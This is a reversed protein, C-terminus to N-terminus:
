LRVYRRVRAFYKTLLLFFPEFGGAKGVAGESRGRLVLNRSYVLIDLPKSMMPPPLSSTPLAMAQHVARAPMLVASVSWASM